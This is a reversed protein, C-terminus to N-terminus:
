VTATGIPHWTRRPQALVKRVTARALEIHGTFYAIDFLLLSLLEDPM